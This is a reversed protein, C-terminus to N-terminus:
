KVLFCLRVKARYTQELDVEPDLVVFGDMRAPRSYQHNLEPLFENAQKTEQYQNQNVQTKQNTRDLGEFNNM